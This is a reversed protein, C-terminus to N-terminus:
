NYFLKIPDGKIVDNKIGCLPCLFNYSYSKRNEMNKKTFVLNHLIDKDLYVVGGLCNMWYQLRTYISMCMKNTLKWGMASLNGVM